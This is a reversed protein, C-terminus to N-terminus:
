FCGEDNWRSNARIQLCPENLGDDSPSDIGADDWPYVSRAASLITPVWPQNRGACKSGGWINHLTRLNNSRYTHLAQNESVSGPLIIKGGSQDNKCYTEAADYSSATDRYRGLCTSIGSVFGM